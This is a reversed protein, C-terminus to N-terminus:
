NRKYQETLEALQIIDIDKLQEPSYRWIWNDDTTGPVNFRADKGLGM